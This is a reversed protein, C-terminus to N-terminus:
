DERKEDRKAFGDKKYPTIRGLLIEWNNDRETKKAVLSQDLITYNGSSLKKNIKHEEICNQSIIEREVGYVARNKHWAKRSFWLAVFSITVALMEPQILFELIKELRFEM